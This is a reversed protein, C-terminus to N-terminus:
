KYYKKYKRYYNYTKLTVLFYRKFTFDEKYLLINRVKKEHYLKKALEKLEKNKTYKMIIGKPVITWLFKNDLYEIERKKDYIFDDVLYKVINKGSVTTFSSSRGQRINIEFLKYNNNKADYKFDFNAYGVFKIEELFDKMKAFLKEDFTPIIADYDGISAPTKEELLIQGLAMFTVKHNKDVYANLVRLSTDDGEIYEQIIINKKYSSAYIRNLIDKFEEENYAIFIKKKGVFDAKWYSVSDSPKLIVPFEFDLKIQKYNQYDCILTRPFDLNYEACTKYFEEKLVLKEMLPKDIYPILFYKELEKKNEIILRMYIDSCAILLLKKKPYKKALEKLTKLFVEKTEINLDRYIELIKSYKTELYDKKGVAISKIKYEEHFAVAMGYVNRDSGLLIPIFEQNEM